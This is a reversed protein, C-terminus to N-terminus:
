NEYQNLFTKETITFSSKESLVYVSTNGFNDHTALGIKEIQDLRITDDDFVYSWKLGGHYDLNEHIYRKDKTKFCFYPQPGWIAKDATIQITNNDFSINLNTPPEYSIAAIDRIADVANSHKIKVDPYKQQMNRVKHMFHDIDNRMEREDHNTVSLITNSGNDVQKFAKEIEEDNIERLRSGLNLCRALYRKMGGNKQYDYFDPHYIGWATPARRWDGYRGGSIDKQKKDEEKEPMGQNGYDFPIWQELFLNSDPRETHAGPRYAVPFDLKDIIRRSLVQLHHNSFSFNNSTKHCEHFFSTSHFHWYIKDDLNKLRIKESYYDYITHYGLARRRPNANDFGVHDVIFWNFRYPNGFDDSLNNRWDLSMMEELMNDIDAWTRNYHMRQPSLFAMVQVKLDDPIKEGKQLSLLKEYTLNKYTLGFTKELRESTADLSEHLPGETDVCHVIHLIKGQHM